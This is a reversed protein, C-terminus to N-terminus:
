DVKSTLWGVGLPQRCSSYQSGSLMSDIRYYVDEVTIELFTVSRVRASSGHGRCELTFVQKKSKSGRTPSKKRSRRTRPLPQYPTTIIKVGDRAQKPLSPTHHTNSPTRVPQLIDAHKSSFYTTSPLLPIMILKVPSPFHIHSHDFADREVARQKGTKRL